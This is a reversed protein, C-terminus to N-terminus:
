RLLFAIRVISLINEFQETKSVLENSYEFTYVHAAKSEQMDTDRKINRDNDQLILIVTM